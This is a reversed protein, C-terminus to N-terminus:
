TGSKTKEGKERTTVGLNMGRTRTRRWAWWPRVQAVSGHGELEVQLELWSSGNVSKSRVEKGTDVAAGRTEV